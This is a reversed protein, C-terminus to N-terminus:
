VHSTYRWRYIGGTIHMSPVDPISLSGKRRTKRTCKNNNYHEETGFVSEVLLVSVVHALSDFPKLSPAVMSMCILYKELQYIVANLPQGSEHEEHIKVGLNKIRLYKKSNCPHDGRNNDKIASSRCTKLTKCCM